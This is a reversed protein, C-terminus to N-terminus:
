RRRKKVNYDLYEHLVPTDQNLKNNHEIVLCEVYMSGDLSNIIDEVDEWQYVVNLLEYGKYGNVYIKYLINM